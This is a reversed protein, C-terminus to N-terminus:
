CRLASDAKFLGMGTPEINRNLYTWVEYSRLRLLIFIHLLGLLSEDDGASCLIVGNVSAAKPRAPRGNLIGRQDTMTRTTARNHKSGVITIASPQPLTGSSSGSRDLTRVMVNKRKKKVDM